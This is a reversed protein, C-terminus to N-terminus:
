KCGEWRSIEIKKRTGGYFNLKAFISFVKRYLIYIWAIALFLLKNKRKILTVIWERWPAYHKVTMFFAHEISVLNYMWKTKIYYDHFSKCYPAYNWFQLGLLNVWPVQLQHSGMEGGYQRPEFTSKIQPWIFQIM